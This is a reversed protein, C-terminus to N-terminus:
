KVKSGIGCFVRYVEDAQSALYNMSRGNMERWFRDIKDMPVLGCSIDNCIIIKDKLAELNEELYPKCAEEREAFTRTFRELGYIVAKDTVLSKTNEDCFLCDDDSVQFQEKVFDLKGQYAGGFVLIM